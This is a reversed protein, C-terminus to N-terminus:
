LASISFTEGKSDVKQEGGTIFMNSFLNNPNTATYVGGLGFCIVAIVIIALTKGISLMRKEKRLSSTKGRVRNYSYNNSDNKHNIPRPDAQIETLDVM